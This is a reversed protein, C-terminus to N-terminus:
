KTQSQWSATLTVSSVQAVALCSSSSMPLVSYMVRVVAEVTGQNAGDLGLAAFGMAVM